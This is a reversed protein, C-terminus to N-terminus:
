YRGATEGRLLAADLERRSFRMRRPGLRHCKVQGRRVAQYLARVSPLSLYVAAEAANLWPETKRNAFDNV